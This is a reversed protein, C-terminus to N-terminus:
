GRGCAGRCSRPARAAARRGPRACGATASRRRAARPASRAGSSRARRRGAIPQSAAAAAQSRDLRARRQLQLGAVVDDVGAEAVADDGRDLRAPDDDHAEGVVAGLALQHGVVRRDPPPLATAARIMSPLATAAATRSRTARRLRPTDASDAAAPAPSPAPRRRGPRPSRRARHLALGALLDPDLEKWWSGPPSTERPPAAPAPRAARRRRAIDVPDEHLQRQGLLDVRVRQDRRDVRGLVDVAQGRDVGAPEGVPRRPQDGQVGAPTISSSRVLGPDLQLARSATTTPREFSTPM